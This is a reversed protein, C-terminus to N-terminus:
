HSPEDGHGSSSASGAAISLVPVEVAVAGAAEFQLTLPFSDGERLRAKLGRLMIHLGGPEFAVAEGAAIDVAEVRRMRMVTGDLRHSHLEAREAVPTSAATLRDAAASRNGVVLYVVGSDAQGITARAFPERVEIAPGQARVATALAVISALTLGLAAAIQLLLRRNM